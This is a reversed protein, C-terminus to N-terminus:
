MSTSSVISGTCVYNSPLSTKRSIYVLWVYYDQSEETNVMRGVPNYIKTFGGDPIEAIEVLLYRSTAVTIRLGFVIAFM